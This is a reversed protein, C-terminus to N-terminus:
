IVSVNADMESVAGIPRYSIMRVARGSLIEYQIGRWAVRRRFSAGVFLCPFVM